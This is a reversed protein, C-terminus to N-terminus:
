SRPSPTQASQVQIFLTELALQKNINRNLATWIWQTLRGLALIDELKLSSAMQQSAKFDEMTSDKQGLKVALLHSLWLGMWQLARETSQRDQAFDKALDMFAGSQFVQGFRQWQREFDQPEVELTAGLRGLTAAGMRDLDISANPFKKKLLSINQARTLSDFRIRQCRSLVTALLAQTRSAILIFLTQPPPEELGKLLANAAEQNLSEVHDIIVFRYQASLPKISIKQNLVRIQDIKISAGEPSILILDPHTKATFSQCSHCQGCGEPENSSKAEPCNAAMALAFAVQRKGIGEEGQFLYAHALSQGKLAGRLIKIPREHGIIEQFRM